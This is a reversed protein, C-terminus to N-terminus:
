IDEFHNCFEYVLVGQNYKWWNVLFGHELGGTGGGWGGLGLCCQAIFILVNELSMLVRGVLMYVSYRHKELIVM